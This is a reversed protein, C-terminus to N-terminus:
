LGDHDFHRDEEEVDRLVLLELDQRRASPKNVRHVGEDNEKGHGQDCPTSLCESWCLPARLRDVLDQRIAKGSSIARCNGGTISTVLCITMAGPLADDVM